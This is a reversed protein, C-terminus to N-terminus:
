THGAVLVALCFVSVLARLWWCPRHGGVLLWVKGSRGTNNDGTTEEVVHLFPSAVLLHRLFAVLGLPALDCGRRASLVRM